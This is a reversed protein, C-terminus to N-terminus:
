AEVEEFKWPDETRIEVVTSLDGGHHLNTHETADRIPHIETDRSWWKHCIDCGYGLIPGRSERPYDEPM